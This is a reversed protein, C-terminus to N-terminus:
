LPKGLSAPLYVRGACSKDELVLGGDEIRVDDVKRFGEPTRAYFMLFRSEIRSKAPLWRCTPVGPLLRMGAAERRPLGFPQTSFELGRAMTLRNAYYEWNQMWPYDSPRVLYGFVLRRRTNLVTIFAFERSSDLAVTAIDTSGPKEPAARLDIESGDRGPAKPWVFEKGPALRRGRSGGPEYPRTLAGKAAVDVLTVLPELFPAGITAHEAWAVPRDFAAHSELESDVYIVNEGRAMRITRTFTEQALPLRTQLKLTAVGSREGSFVIEWRQLHAEGHSPLGAKREEPSPSGFGDVCVFHGLSAGFRPPENAERAARAPDWLPSLKEPDDNRLLKAFAGGQLVVTLELSGNSVVIAPRNEFMTQGFAGPTQALSIFLPIAYM